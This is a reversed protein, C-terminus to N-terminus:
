GDIGRICISNDSINWNNELENANEKEEKEIDEKPIGLAEVINTELMSKLNEQITSVVGAVDCRCNVPLSTKHKTIIPSDLISTRTLKYLARDFKVQILMDPNECTVLELRSISFRVAKADKELTIVWDSLHDVFWHVSVREVFCMTLISYLSKSM